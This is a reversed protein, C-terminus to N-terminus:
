YARSPRFHSFNWFYRSGTLHFLDKQFLCFQLIHYTFAVPCLGIIANKWLPCHALPAGGGGKLGKDGKSVKARELVQDSLLLYQRGGSPFEQFFYKINTHSCEARRFPPPPPPVQGSKQCTHAGVSGFILGMVQAFNKM